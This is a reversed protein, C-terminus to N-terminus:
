RRTALLAFRGYISPDIADANAVRIYRFAFLEAMPLAIRQMFTAPSYFRAHRNGWGAACFLTAGEDFPVDAYLSVQPDTQSAPIDYIYFPIVCVAGGSRLVRALERFLRVDADREFHELSCTLAVKAAFGDALPMACADGGIRSGTIGPAYQIDQSFSCAGRLRWAIESLPSNESAIDIFVETPRLDLVDLAFWHEFSKEARNGPYYAPYRFAYGADGVFQRYRAVDCHLPEFVMGASQAERLIREVSPPSINDIAGNVVGSHRASFAALAEAFTAVKAKPRYVYTM